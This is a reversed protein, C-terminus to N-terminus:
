RPLHACASSQLRPFRRARRRARSRVARCRGGTLAFGLACVMGVAAALGDQGDLLNVANLLVLVLGGTAIAVLATGPVALAAVGGVGVEAILRTAASLPRIDDATGIVLALVLPVLLIMRDAVVVGVTLGALVAIGGLYPVPRRHTKLPGPVDVIGARRAVAGAVPTM